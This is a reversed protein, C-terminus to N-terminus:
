MKKGLRCFRFKGCYRGSYAIHPRKMRTNTRVQLAPLGPEM